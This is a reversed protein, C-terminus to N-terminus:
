EEESGGAARLAAVDLVELQRGKHAGLVGEERLTKLTRSLTESTLGLLRALVNQQTPMKVVCAGSPIDVLSALYRALRARADRLTLDEVLSVLRRLKMAMGAMMRLAVEPDNKMLRLLAEREVSILESDELCQTSAPYKGGMFVAAEAFTQGPPVVALIQEQGRPNLKYIKVMGKHVLYISRAPDGEDFIQSGAPLRVMSCHLELAAADAPTLGSFLPFRALDM